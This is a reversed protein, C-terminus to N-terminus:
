QAPVVTSKGSSDKKKKKEHRKGRERWINRLLDACPIYGAKLIWTYYKEVPIKLQMVTKGEMKRDTNAIIYAERKRMGVRMLKRCEALYVDRDYKHIETITEEFWRDLESLKKEINALSYYNVWGRTIEMLKGVFEKNSVKEYYERIVEQMRNRLYEIKKEPVDLVYGFETKKFTYGLFDIDSADCIKTKGYNIELKLVHEIYDVVKEYQCNAEWESNCLIMCDDAYRSFTIHQSQLYTDLENLFINSLLPSLPGGQPVGKTVAVTGKRPVVAKVVLYKQILKLLDEDKIKKKLVQMLIDHPVSDFFKRLDIKIIHHKGKNIERLTYIIAPFCGRGEIFGFSYDSFDTEYIPALVSVISAQIMRDVAAPISLMRYETDNKPIYIRLLKIPKYKGAIIREKLDEYMDPFRTKLQEISIGDIGACAAPNLTELAKEMNKKKVVQDLLKEM